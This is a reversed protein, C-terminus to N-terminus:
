WDNLSGDPRRLRPPETDHIPRAAAAREDLDIGLGPDETPVLYGDEIKPANLIVDDLWEPHPNCEQVACNPVATNLHLMAAASVSSATYHLALEQYHVEGMTAIKKGETIGGSHCIDVRLYDVLEGEILERFAWKHTLQEGTGLPVSTHQRLLAFTAPNESRIPDEVFMPRFPAIANCLGIAQPPTMRTHVEFIVEPEDGVANRLAEFHAVSQRTMASADFIGDKGSTPSIRLVKCGGDLLQQARDVLEEPTRGGVHRYTLVRDRCKGGLLRYLPVGLARANLDWLAIDVGALASQLVPGGRWFTGRFIDQWIHEIRTADQGTLVPKLHATLVEVIAQNRGSLSAEGIGHIGGDTELKVFVWNHVPFVKLDTIKM